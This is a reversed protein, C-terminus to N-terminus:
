IKDLSQSPDELLLIKVMKAMANQVAKSSESPITSKEGRAYLSSTFVLSIIVLILTHLKM